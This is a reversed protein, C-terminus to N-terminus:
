LLYIKSEKDYFINDPIYGVQFPGRNETDWLSPQNNIAQLYNILLLSLIISKM